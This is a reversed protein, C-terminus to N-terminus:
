APEVERFFESLIGPQQVAVTAHVCRVPGAFRRCFSPFAADVLGAAAWDEPGSGEPPSDAAKVLLIATAELRMGLWCTLSDSTVDWIAPIDPAEGALAMPLWVGSRGAALDAASRLRALRPELDVLAEAAQEMGLIAMRHAARGSFGMAPEAVRVADAFPGGGPVVIVPGAAEAAAALWPRLVGKGYLSGGLKVLIPKM